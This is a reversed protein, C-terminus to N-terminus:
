NDQLGCVQEVKGKELVLRTQEGNKDRRYQVSRIPCGTFRGVHPLTVSATDSKGPIVAGRCTVTLLFSEREASELLSRPDKGSQASVFRRRPISDQGGRFATDYGGRCSQIWVESLRKCPLMEVKASIIERLEVEKRPTQGCQVLGNLDVCPEAGFYTQCFRNLVTWCSEGKEVNLEGPQRSKDVTGARLGLPLLLRTELLEFSPSGTAGPPAENDLLLAELSRCVLETVLGTSSLTTNQEDVIGRFLLDGDKYMSVERLEEWLSAAPFKARLLDAPADRDMSLVAEMPEGLLMREGSANVGWFTM